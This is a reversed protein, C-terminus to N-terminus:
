RDSMVQEADEECQEQNKGKHSENDTWQNQTKHKRKEKKTHRHTHTHKNQKTKNAKAAFDWCILCSFKVPGSIYSAINMKTKDNVTPSETDNFIKAESKM